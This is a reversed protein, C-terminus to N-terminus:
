DHNEVMFLEFKPTDIRVASLMNGWICGTDICLTHKTQHLGLAAWHGFIIKHNNEPRPFNFWPTLHEPAQSLKEKFDFDLKLDKDLFRMRTFINIIARLREHGSLEENWFNPSNGFMRALFQEYKGDKDQFVQMIELNYRWADEISWSPHMGAHVIIIQNFETEIKIMLPCQRLYDIFVYPNKTTLISSFTDNKKIKVFGAAAALFNLDHNGLVSQMATASDLIRELVDVSRPGRNILDGVLYIKDTNPKFNIKKLLANFSRDCGHIDGIVYTAM